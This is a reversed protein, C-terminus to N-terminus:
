GHIAGKQYRVPIVRAKTLTFVLVPILIFQVVIGPITAVFYSSVWVALTFAEGGTYFLAKAIGGVIRGLIMAIALAIYVDAYYKKTRILSMVIGAALGYVVLEPLMSVLASAPPMGSLISSLIPGFLGCVAGYFGGCVLGCLLVPLHMPSLIQGLGFPHLAVPLVYCLAICAACVTIRKVYSMKEM